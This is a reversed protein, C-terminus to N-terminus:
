NLLDRRQLIYERRCRPCEITLSKQNEWLKQREKDPLATIMNLIMEDNCRCEYFILFEQLPKVKGANITNRMETLFHQKNMDTVMDINGGPMAQVLIGSCDDDLEIRTKLQDSYKFYQAVAQVPDKTDPTYHSQTLPGDKKQRQVYIANKEATASDAKGCIMGEPEVACFFGLPSDKLTISWGFSEKEALTSAVLACAGMIRNLILESNEPLPKINYRQEYLDKSIKVEPFKGSVIILNQKELLYKRYQGLHLKINTDVQNEQQQKSANFV